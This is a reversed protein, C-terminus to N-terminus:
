RESSKGCIKIKDTQILIFSSTIGPPIGKVTMQAPIEWRFLWEESPKKAMLRHNLASDWNIGHLAFTPMNREFFVELHYSNWSEKSQIIKVALVKKKNLM